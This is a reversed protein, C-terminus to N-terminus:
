GTLADRAEDTLYVSAEMYHFMRLSGEGGYCRRLGLAARTCSQAKSEAFSWDLLVLAVVVNPAVEHAWRRDVSYRKISARSWAVWTDVYHAGGEVPGWYEDGIYTPHQDARGLVQALQEFDLAAWYPTTCRSSSVFRVTRSNKRSDRDHVVVAGGVEDVPEDDLARVASPLGYLEIANGRMIRERTSKPFQKVAM